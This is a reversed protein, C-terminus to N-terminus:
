RSNNGALDDAQRSRQLARNVVSESLKIQTIRVFSAMKNKKRDEKGSGRTTHDQHEVRRQGGCLGM